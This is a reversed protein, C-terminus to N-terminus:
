KYLHIFSKAVAFHDEPRRTEMVGGWPNNVLMNGNGDLGVIVVYHGNGSSTQYSSVILEGKSLLDMIKTKDQPTLRSGDTGIIEGRIGYSRALLSDYFASRLTGQCNCSGIPCARCVGPEFGNGTSSPCSNINGWASAVSAPNITQGTLYSAVMAFSSPGCGSTEITGCRGYPQDFTRQDYMPVGNWGTGNGIPQATLAIESKIPMSLPTENAIFDLREIKKIEFFDLELVRPDLIYGITYASLILVIGLIAEEMRTKAASISGSSGGALLWQLGSITFVIVAIFASLGLLLQYIAKVYIAIFNTEITEGQNVVKFDDESLGPIPISLRPIIPDRTPTKEPTASDDAVIGLLPAQVIRSRVGNINCQIAYDTPRGGYLTDLVNDSMQSISQCADRCRDVTDTSGYTRLQSDNASVSPPCLCEISGAECQAITATPPTSDSWIASSAIIEVQGGVKCFTVSNVPAAIASTPHEAYYQCRTQCQDVSTFTIGADDFFDASITPDCRCGITNADCSSIDVAKAPLASLSFFAIIFFALHKM